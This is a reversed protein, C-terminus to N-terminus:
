TQFLEIWIGNPDVIYVWRSTETKMDLVAPYGMKKAEALMRELNETGFALHDLAEGATYRSNYKSSKEYFNLELAFGGEKSVLNVVEGRAIPIKSRGVVKMGLLKTYFDISKTLNKVRIGTYTFSTKM